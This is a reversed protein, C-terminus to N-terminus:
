LFNYEDLFEKMNKTIVYLIVILAVFGQLMIIETISMNLIYRMFMFSIMYNLILSM